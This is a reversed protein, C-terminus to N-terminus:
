TSKTEEVPRLEPPYVIVAREMWDDGIGEESTDHAEIEEETMAAVRVWDTQSTRRKLEETTYSVIKSNQM